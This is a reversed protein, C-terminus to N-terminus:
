PASSVHIIINASDVSNQPSASDTVRAKISFDGAVTPAFTYTTGTGIVNGTANDIWQITYPAIGGSPTATFIAASGGVTLNASTPTVAVNLAPLPTIVTTYTAYISMAFAHYGQPTSPDPFNPYTYSRYAEQNSSGADYKYRWGNQVTIALWLDRSGQTNVYSIPFDYWNLSSISVESSEALKAGPVGASDTYLAAKGNHPAGDYSQIYATIKTISGSEPM